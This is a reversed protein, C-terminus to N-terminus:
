LNSIGSYAWKDRRAPQVVARSQILFSLHMPM